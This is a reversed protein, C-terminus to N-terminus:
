RGSQVKRLRERIALYARAVDEASAIAENARLKDLIAALAGPLHSGWENALLARFSGWRASSVAPLGRSDKEASLDFVRLWWAASKVDAVATNPVLESHEKQRWGMKELAERIDGECEAQNGKAYAALYGQCLIAFAPLVKAQNRRLLSPLRREDNPCGLEVWEMIESAEMATVADAKGNLPRAVIWYAEGEKPSGGTYRLICKANRRLETWIGTDNNHLLVLALEGIPVGLDVLYNGAKTCKSGDFFYTETSCSTFADCTAQGRDLDSDVVLVTNSM